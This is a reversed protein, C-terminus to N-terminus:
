GVCRSWDYIIKRIVEFDTIKKDFELVNYETVNFIRSPMTLYYIMTKEEGAFFLREDIIPLIEKFSTNEWYQLVYYGDQGLTRVRSLFVYYFFEQGNGLSPFGPIADELFADRVTVRSSPAIAYLPTYEIKATLDTNM